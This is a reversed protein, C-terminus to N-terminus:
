EAVEALKRTGRLRGLDGESELASLPERDGRGAWSRARGLGEPAGSGAPPGPGVQAEGRGARDAQEAEGHEASRRCGGREDGRCRGARGSGGAPCPAARSGGPAAARLAASARRGAFGGRPGFRPRAPSGSSEGDWGCALASSPGTAQPARGPGAARGRGTRRRACTAATSGPASTSGTSVSVRPRASGGRGKSREAQRRAAGARGRPLTLRCIRGRTEGRTPALQAGAPPPQARCGARRAQGARTVSSGAPVGAPAQSGAGRRKTAFTHWTAVRQRPLKERGLPEGAFSSFVM